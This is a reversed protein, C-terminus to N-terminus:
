LAVSLMLGSNVDVDEPSKSKTKVYTTLANLFISYLAGSTGDMTHEVTQSIDTLFM